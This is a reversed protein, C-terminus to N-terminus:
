YHETWAAKLLLDKSLQRSKTFIIGSDAKDSWLLAISYIVDLNIAFTFM